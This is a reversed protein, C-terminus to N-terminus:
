FKPNLLYQHLNAPHIAKLEPKSYFRVNSIINTKLEPERGRILKGGVWRVKFILEVAHLPLKIFELVTVFNCVEITLGTEEYYERVLAQELNEGYKVGGGPPSLLFDRGLGEHKVLLIEDRIELIGMVRVRLKGGYIAEVEQRSM